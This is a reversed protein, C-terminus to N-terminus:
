DLGFKLELSKIGLAVLLEKTSSLVSWDFFEKEFM